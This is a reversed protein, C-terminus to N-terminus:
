KGAKEVRRLARITVQRSHVNVDSLEVEYVDGVKIDALAIHKGDEEVGSMGSPELLVDLNFWNITGKALKKSIVMSVVFSFTKPLDPNEGFKWARLLAQLMWERNGQSQDLLKAHRERVRLLPFVEEEL